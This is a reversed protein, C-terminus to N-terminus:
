IASKVQQISKFFLYSFIGITMFVHLMMVYISSLTIAFTTWDFLLIGNYRIIYFVYIHIVALALMSAKMTAFAAELKVNSKSNGFRMFSWKSIFYIAGFTVLTILTKLLLMTWSTLVLSLLYEIAKM